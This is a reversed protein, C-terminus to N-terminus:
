SSYLLETLRSQVIMMMMKDGGNCLNVSLVLMVAVMATM